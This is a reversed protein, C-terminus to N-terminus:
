GQAEATTTFYNSEFEDVSDLLGLIRQIMKQFTKLATIIVRIFHPVGDTKEEWVAYLTVEGEVYIEDGAKYLNNFSDRWCVFDHDVAIPEDSTVKIYCSGAAKVSANPCYMMSVVSAPENAYTIQFVLPKQEALALDQAAFAAVSVASFICMVALLVAIFKKM